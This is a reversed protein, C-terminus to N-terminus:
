KKALDPDSALDERSLGNAVAKSAWKEATEREGLMAYAVALDLAVEKDSVPTKAAQQARQTALARESLCSYYIALLSATRAQTPDVQLEEEGLQVATRYLPDTDAKPAGSRRLAQARVGWVRFDKSSLQLAKGYADAAKRFQRSRYYLNGLNLYAPYSPGLALSKELTAIADSLKKRGMLVVGLNSFLAPNDPTFALARRLQAESEELRGQRLYFMALANHPTWTYPSLSVARRLAKEAEVKQGLEEYARGMGAIASGDRPNLELARQFEAVAQDKQGRDQYVHGLVVHAEALKGDLQVAQLAYNLAHQLNSSDKDVRYKTQSAEALGAYAPAFNPEARVAEGFSKLASDVNGPRDWRQLYGLGELYMAYGKGGGSGASGRDRRIDLIGSIEAAARDELARADGSADEISVKGTSGHRSDNVDIRLRLGGDPMRDLTGSLTLMAGLLRRADTANQINKSVLESSPIVSLTGSFSEMQAMRGSLAEAFGGALAATAPDGSSGFPLIAVPLSEPKRRWYLLGAVVLLLVLAVAIFRKALSYKPKPLPLADNVTIAQSDLAPGAAQLAQAFEEMSGYRKSPEKELAKRLVATLGPGVGSLPPPEDHVIAYLVGYMDDGQFPRQGSLMEYLVAGLSWIDSRSDAGTSRVQEPSMYAATGLFTLSQTISVEGLLFKALGFDVVKVAGSRTLMINAPKVDRHVIGRAHADGLGNAVAVAIRLAESVPLQGTAIRQALTQGEYYAMVICLEGDPGEEIGHITGINPHDLASAARAERLFRDRADGEVPQMGSLFKLAVDRGLRKDRARYVVGMGGTGLKELVEFNPFSREEM